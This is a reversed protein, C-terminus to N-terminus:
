SRDIFSIEFTRPIESSVTLFLSELALSAKLCLRSSTYGHFVKVSFQFIKQFFLSGFKRLIKGVLYVFGNFVEAGDFLLFTPEPRSEAPNRNDGQKNHYNQRIYASIDGVRHEINGNEAIKDGEIYIDQTKFTGDEQFVSANKIIM